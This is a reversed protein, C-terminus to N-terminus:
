LLLPMWPVVMPSFHSKTLQTCPQQTLTQNSLHPPSTHPLCPQATGSTLKLAEGSMAPSRHSRTSLPVSESALTGVTHSHVAQHATMM